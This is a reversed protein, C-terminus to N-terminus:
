PPLQRDLTGRDRKAVAVARQHAEAKARHIQPVSDCRCRIELRPRSHRVPVSGLRLINRPAAARGLRIDTELDCQFPPHTASWARDRLLLVLPSVHSDSRTSDLIPALASASVGGRKGDGSMLGSTRIERMRSESQIEDGLERVTRWGSVVCNSFGWGATSRMGPSALLLAVRVCKIADGSTIAYAKM